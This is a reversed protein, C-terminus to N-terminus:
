QIPSEEGDGVGVGVGLKMTALMSVIKIISAWKIGYMDWKLKGDRVKIEDGDWAVMNVM